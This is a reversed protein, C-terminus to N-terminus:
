RYRQFIAKIPPGTDFVIDPVVMLKLSYFMLQIRDRLRDRQRASLSEDYEWQLCAWFLYAALKPRNPHIIPM